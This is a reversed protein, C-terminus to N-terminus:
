FKEKCIQQPKGSKRWKNGFIRRNEGMGGCFKRYPQECVTKNENLGTDYDGSISLDDFLFCCPLLCVIHKIYIKEHKKM